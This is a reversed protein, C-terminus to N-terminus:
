SRKAASCMRNTQVSTSLMIKSNGTGRALGKEQATEEWSDGTAKSCLNRLFEILRPFDYEFVVLHHRGVLIDDQGHTALLWTPTCVTLGSGEFGRPLLFNWFSGLNTPDPPCYAELDEVDPSWFSKLEAHM